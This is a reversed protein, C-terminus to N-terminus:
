RNRKEKEAAAFRLEAEVRNKAFYIVDGEHWVTYPQQRGPREVIGHKKMHDDDKWGSAKAKM